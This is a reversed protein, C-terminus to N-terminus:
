HSGCAKAGASEDHHYLGTPMPIIEGASNQALGFFRAVTPADYLKGSKGLFVIDEAPFWAFDERLGTEFM